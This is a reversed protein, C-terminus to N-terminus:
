RLQTLGRPNMNLGKSLSRAPGLHHVIPNDPITTPIHPNQPSAANCLPTRTFSPSRASPASHRPEESEVRLKWSEVEESGGPNEDHQYSFASTM